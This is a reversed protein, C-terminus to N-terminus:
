DGVLRADPDATRTTRTVRFIPRIEVRRWTLPDLVVAACTAATGLGIWSEDIPWETHSRAIVIGIAVLAASKDIQRRSKRVYSRSRHWGAAVVFVAIEGLPAERGGDDLFQEGGAAVEEGDLGPGEDFGVLHQAHVDRREADVTGQRDIMPCSPSLRPTSM